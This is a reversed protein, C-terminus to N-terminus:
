LSYFAESRMRMMLNQNSLLCFLNDKGVILALWGIRRPIKRPVVADVFRCVSPSSSQPKSCYTNALAFLTPANHFLTEVKPGQRMSSFSGRDNIMGNLCGVLGCTCKKFLHEKSSYHIQARHQLHHQARWIAIEDYEDHEWEDASEPCVM